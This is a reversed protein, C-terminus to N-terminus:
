KSYKHRHSPLFLTYWHDFLRLVMIDDSSHYQFRMLWDKQSCPNISCRGMISLHVHIHNVPGDYVLLHQHIHRCIRPFLSDLMRKDKELSFFVFIIIQIGHSTHISANIISVIIDANVKFVYLITRNASCIDIHNAGQVTRRGRFILSM